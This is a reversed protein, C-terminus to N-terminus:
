QTRSDVGIKSGGWCHFTGITPYPGDAVAAPAPPWFVNANINTDDCTHHVGSCLRVNGQDPQPTCALDGGFVSSTAAQAAPALALAGVAVAAALSRTLTHREM